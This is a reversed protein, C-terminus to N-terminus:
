NTNIYKKLILQNEKTYKIKHTISKTLYRIVQKVIKYYKEILNHAYSRLLNMVYSINFKTAIFAYILFEIM